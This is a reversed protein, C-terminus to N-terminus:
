VSSPRGARLCLGCLHPRAAPDARFHGALLLHIRLPHRLGAHRAAGHRRGKGRRHVGGGRRFDADAARLGRQADGIERKRPVDCRDPGQVGERKRTRHRAGQKHARRRHGRQVRRHHPQQGGPHRPQRRPHPAPFVRDCARHAARHLARAAGPGREAGGHGRVRGGRLSLELRHGGHEVRRHHRDQRHREDRPRPHPGRADHQLLGPQADASAQVARAQSRARRVDGRLHGGHLVRRRLAHFVHHRRSVCARIGM